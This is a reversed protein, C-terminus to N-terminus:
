CTLVITRLALLAPPPSPAPAIDHSRSAVVPPVSGVAPHVILPLSPPEVLESGSAQAPPEDVLAVDVCPHCGHGETEVAPAAHAHDHAHSHGTGHAHGVDHDHGHGHEHAHGGPHSCASEISKFALHGDDAVCLVGAPLAWASAVQLTLM